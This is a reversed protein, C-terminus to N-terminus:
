SNLFAFIRKVVPEPNIHFADRDALPTIDKIGKFEKGIDKLNFKLKKFKKNEADYYFYDYLLDFQRLESQVYNASVYGLDSKYRKYLSFRTGSHLVQFYSKENSGAHKGYVFKRDESIGSAENQRLVFSDVEGPAKVLAKTRNATSYFELEQSYTNYSLDLNQAKEAPTFLDGNIKEGFLYPTGVVKYTGILKYVGDGQQERLLKNRSLAPDHYGPVATQSQAAGALLLWIAALFIKNRPIMMETNPNTIL